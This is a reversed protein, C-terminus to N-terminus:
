NYRKTSMAPILFSRCCTIFINSDRVDGDTFVYILQPKQFKSPNGIISSWLEKLVTGLRTPGGFRVQDEWVKEFESKKSVLAAPDDGNLCHLQFGDGTAFINCIFVTFGIALKMDEVLGQRSSGSDDLIM